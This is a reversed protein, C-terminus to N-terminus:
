TIQSARAQTFIQQEVSLYRFIHTAQKESMSSGECASQLAHPTRTRTRIRAKICTYAGHHTSEIQYQLAHELVM